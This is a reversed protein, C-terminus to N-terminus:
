RVHTPHQGTNCANSVVERAMGVWAIAAHLSAYVALYPATEVDRNSSNADALSDTQLQMGATWESERFFRNDRARMSGSTAAASRLSLRRAAITARM